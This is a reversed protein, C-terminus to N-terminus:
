RFDLGWRAASSRSPRHPWSIAWSSVRSPPKSAPRGRRVGYPRCLMNLDTTIFLQYILYIYLIYLIIIYINLIFIYVWKIYVYIYVYMYSNIYYTRDKKPAKPEPAAEPLKPAEEQVAASATSYILDLSKAAVETAIARPSAM